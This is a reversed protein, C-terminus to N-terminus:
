WPVSHHGWGFLFRRLLGRGRGMSQKLEDLEAKLRGREADDTAADLEAQKARLAAERAPRPDVIGPVGGLM